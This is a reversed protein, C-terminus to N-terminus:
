INVDACCPILSSIYFLREVSVYRCCVKKVCALALLSFSLSFPVVKKKLAPIWLLRWQVSVLMYGCRMRMLWIDSWCSKSYFSDHNSMCVIEVCVVELLAWRGIYYLLRANQVPFFLLPVATLKSNTNQYKEGWHLESAPFCVLFDVFYIKYCLIACFVFVSMYRSWIRNGNWTEPM